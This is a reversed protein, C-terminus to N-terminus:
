NKVLKLFLRGGPKMGTVRWSAEPYGEIKIVSGLSIYVKKSLEVDKPVMVINGTGTDM